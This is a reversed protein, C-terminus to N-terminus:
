IDDNRIQEEKIDIAYKLYAIAKKLDHSPNETKYGARSCYKIVNGICFSYGGDPMWAKIAEIAEISDRHYYEASTPAKNDQDESM